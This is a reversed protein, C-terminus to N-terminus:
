RGEEASAERHRQVEGFWQVQGRDIGARIGEPQNDRQDV